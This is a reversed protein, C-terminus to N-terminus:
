LHLANRGLFELIISVLIVYMIKTKSVSGTVNCSQVVSSSCVVKILIFDILASIKKGNM